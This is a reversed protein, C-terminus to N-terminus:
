LRARVPAVVIETRQVVPAVAIGAPIEGPGIDAVQEVGLLDGRPPQRRDVVQPEQDMHHLFDPLRDRIIGQQVVPFFEILAVIQRFVESQRIGYPVHRLIQRLM